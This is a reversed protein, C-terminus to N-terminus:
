KKMLFLRLSVCSLMLNKKKKLWGKTETDKENVPSDDIIEAQVLDQYCSKGIKSLSARCTSQVDPLEDLTGSLIVPLIRDGYQYREQPPWNCLLTSLATYLNYRVTASADFVLGPIVPQRDMKEDYEFLLYLGKPSAM